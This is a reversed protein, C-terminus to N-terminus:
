STATDLSLRSAVRKSNSLLSLWTKHLFSLASIALIRSHPPVFAFNLTCAPLWFAITGTSAQVWEDQFQRVSDGLSQGKLSGTTLYFTPCMLFVGNGFVDVLAKRVAAGSGWWRDYRAYLFRCPGGYFLTGWVVLARWRQWDFQDGVPQTLLQATADASGLVCCATIAAVKHPHEDSVRAYASTYEWFSSSFSRRAARMAIIM